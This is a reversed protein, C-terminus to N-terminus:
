ATAQPDVIHYMMDFIHWRDLIQLGRAKAASSASCQFIGGARPYRYTPRQRLSFVPSNHRQHPDVQALCEAIQRLLKSDALYKTGEPTQLLSHMLACGVRVYKQSNRSSKVESFKYKFPRYFSMMRKM